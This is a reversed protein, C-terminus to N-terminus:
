QLDLSCVVSVFQCQKLQLDKRYEGPIGQGAWPVDLAHFVFKVYVLVSLLPTRIALVQTHPGNVKFCPSAKSLGM